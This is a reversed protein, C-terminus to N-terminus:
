GRRSTSGQSAPVPARRRSRWTAPAAPSDLWREGPRPPLAEVLSAHVDGTSEALEEFAGSPWAVAARQELEAFDPM